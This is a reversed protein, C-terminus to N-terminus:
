FNLNKLKQEELFNTGRDSYVRRSFIVNVQGLTRNHDMEKQAVGTQNRSNLCKHKCM